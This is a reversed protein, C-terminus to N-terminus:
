FYGAFDELDFKFSEKDGGRQMSEIKVWIQYRKGAVVKESPIEFKLLEKTLTGSTKKAEEKSSFRIFGGSKKTPFPEEDEMTPYLTERMKPVLRGIKPGIVIVNYIRPKTRDMRAIVKVELINGELYAEVAATARRHEKAERLLLVRDQAYGLSSLILVLGTVAFTLRKM